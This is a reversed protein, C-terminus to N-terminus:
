ALNNFALQLAPKYTPKFSEPDGYQLPFIILASITLAILNRVDLKLIRPDNEKPSL